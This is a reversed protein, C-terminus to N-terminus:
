KAALRMAADRAPASTMLFNMLLYSVLGCLVAVIFGPQRAIVGLSRGAAVGAQVGPLDVGALVAMALLAVGAQVLYSVAFLYPPWLGMTLTVIQPGLVGAFIGGAMVLSLARARYEPAVGDAAAFRFSLVVAAYIGGCFTGACFLWFSATMVAAWAIVGMAAGAGTGVMFAARRGYRRAIAGAPLTCVAMGIVFVTIPLTALDPSPALTSGVVAGTAYVVTANAGALAQAVALRITNNMSRRDRLM